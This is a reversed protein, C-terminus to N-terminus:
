GDLLGLVGGNGKREFYQLDIFVSAALILQRDEMTLAPSSFELQFNDADTFIERLGGSWKKRITAVVSGRYDTIPFTWFSLLGSRMTFKVQGSPDHLDFKKTLLGFRQELRGVPQGLPGTIELAQFFWRFPHKAQLVVSRDPAFFHLEFTRWHGLFQRVLMGLLGKQQEACFAIAQGSEDNIEYKNRTEFGVLEALERRQRIVLKSTPQKMSQLFSM